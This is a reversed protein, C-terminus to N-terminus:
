KNALQSEVHHDAPWLLLIPFLIEPCAVIHSIEAEVFPSTVILKTKNQQRFIMNLEYAEIDRMLSWAHLSWEAGILAAVRHAQPTSALEHWTLQFVYSVIMQYSIQIDYLSVRTSWKNPPVISYPLEITCNWPSVIITLYVKSRHSKNINSTLQALTLWLQYLM